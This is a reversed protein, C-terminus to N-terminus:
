HVVSNTTQGSSSSPSGSVSEPVFPPVPTDTAVVPIELTDQLANVCQQSQLEYQTCLQYNSNNNLPKYSYGAGTQPDRPLASLFVPVLQGLSNPYEQHQQYYYGLATQLKATDSQREADRATSHTGLPDFVLYLSAALLILVAVCTGMLLVTMKATSLTSKTEFYELLRYFSSIGPLQKIVDRQIQSIAIEIDEEPYGEYLLEEKIETRRKGVRFKERIVDKLEDTVM